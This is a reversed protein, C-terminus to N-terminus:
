NYFFDIRNNKDILIAYGYVLVHGDALNGNKVETVSQLFSGGPATKQLEIGAILKKVAEINQNPIKTIEDGLVGGKSLYIVNAFYSQDKPKPMVAVCAHYHPEIKVLKPNSDTSIKGNNQFYGFPEQGYWSQIAATIDKRGKLHDDIFAVFFVQKGNEDQAECAIAFRDPTIMEAKFPRVSQYPLQVGHLVESLLDTGFLAWPLIKAIPRQESM